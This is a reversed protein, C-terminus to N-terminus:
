SNQAIRNGIKVDLLNRQNCLARLFGTFNPLILMYLFYIQM